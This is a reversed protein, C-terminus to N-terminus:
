AAFDSVKKRERAVEAVIRQIGGILRINKEIDDGAREVLFLLLSTVLHYVHDPQIVGSECLAKIEIFKQRAALPEEKVLSLTPKQKKKM